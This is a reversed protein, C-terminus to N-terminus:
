DRRITGRYLELEEIVNVLTNAEYNQYLFGAYLMTTALWALVTTAFLFIPNIWSYPLWASGVTLGIIVVLCVFFISLYLRLSSRSHRYCTTLAQILTTMSADNLGPPPNPQLNPISSVQQSPDFKAGQPRSETITNPAPAPVEVDSPNRVDGPQGEPLHISFTAELGFHDSFSYPKGPVHETFVVDSQVPELIPTKSSLLSHIPPRYLVYDLRKGQFQRAYDDLPKGASYTNAPSDATIGFTHVAELPPTNPPFTTPVNQHTGAWADRLGSHDEIISM